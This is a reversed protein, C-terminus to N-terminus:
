SNSSVDPTEDRGSTVGYTLSHLRSIQDKDQKNRHVDLIMPCVPLIIQEDVLGAIYPYLCRLLGQHMPLYKAINESNHIIKSVELLESSSLSPLIDQNLSAVITQLVPIAAVIHPYATEVLYTHRDHAIISNFASRSDLVAIDEKALTYLSLLDKALPLLEENILHRPFPSGYFDLGKIHRYLEGATKSYAKARLSRLNRSGVLMRWESPPTKLYNRKFYLSHVDVQDNYHEYNADLTKFFLNIYSVQNSHRLVQLPVRDYFKGTIKKSVEMGLVERGFARPNTFAIAATPLMGVDKITMLNAVSQLFSAPVPMSYLDSALTHDYLYDQLLKPNNPYMLNTPYQTILTHYENRSFIDIFLQPYYQTSIMFRNQFNLQLILSFLDYASFYLSKPPLSYHNYTKQKNKLKNSKSILYSKLHPINLLPKM